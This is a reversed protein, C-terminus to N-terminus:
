APPPAVRHDGLDCGVGCECVLDMFRANALRDARGAVGIGRNGLRDVVKDARADSAGKLYFVTDNTTQM